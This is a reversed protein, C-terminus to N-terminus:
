TTEKEQQVRLLPHVYERDAHHKFFLFPHAFVDERRGITTRAEDGGKTKWATQCGNAMTALAGVCMATEDDDPGHDRNHCAPVENAMVADTYYEPAYGGLWGAPSIKRWPCENCPAKHHLKM